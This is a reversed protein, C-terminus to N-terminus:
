KINFHKWSYQSVSLYQRQLFNTGFKVNNLTIFNEDLTIFNPIKLGCGMSLSDPTLPIEWSVLAWSPKCM